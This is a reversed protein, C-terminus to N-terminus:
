RDHRQQQHQQNDLVGVDALADFAVAVRVPCLAWRLANLFVGINQYRCRATEFHGLNARFLLSAYKQVRAVTQAVLHPAEPSRLTLTVATRYFPPVLNSARSFIRTSSRVTM